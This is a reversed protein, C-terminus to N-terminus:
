LVAHESAVSSLREVVRGDIVLEAVRGKGDTVTALTHTSSSFQGRFDVPVDARRRM